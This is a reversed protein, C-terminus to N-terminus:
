WYSWPDTLALKLKADTLAFDASLAIYENNESM